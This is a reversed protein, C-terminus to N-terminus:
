MGAEMAWVPFGTLPSAGQWGKEPRGDAQGAGGCVRSGCASGKDEKRDASTEPTASPNVFSSSAPAPEGDM